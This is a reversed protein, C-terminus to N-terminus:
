AYSGVAKTEIEDVISAMTEVVDKMATTYERTQENWENLRNYTQVQVQESYDNLLKALESELDNIHTKLGAKFAELHQDLATFGSEAHESAQLLTKSVEGFQANLRSLDSLLDQTHEFVAKNENAVQQNSELLQMVPVSLGDATEKLNTSLVGLQNAVSAMQQSSQKMGQNVSANEIALQKFSDLLLKLQENNQGSAASQMELMQEIRDMVQQQSEKSKELGQEFVAQRQQDIEQQQEYQQQIRQQLNQFVEQTNEVTRALTQQSAETIQQIQTKIQENQADALQKSGQQHQELQRVFDHMQAGMSNVANGVNASAQELMLRQSNGAEGVGEMFRILLSELAQESGKNANDVLSQIAPAMIQNLSNELGTQISATTEVLAEQLRDGIKEALGQLTEDASRSHDAITVLSQEANIRPFLYDIQNQLEHIDKRIGRELAKEAFNFILSTGIGWISTMFAISAGNILSGIGNRLEDVGANQQLQLQSLALQLGVFTGVVGIATLFGPVAAMLRNQTLSGALTSENFFHAADLTNFLGTGDSSKVLSEDFEKWLHGYEKHELASNRLDRQKSALENQDINALLDKYFRVKKTASSYGNVAYVFFLVAIILLLLVFFASLGEGENIGGNFLLSFDPWLSSLDFTTKKM